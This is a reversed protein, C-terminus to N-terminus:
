IAVWEIRTRVDTWEGFNVEAAVAAIFGPTDHAWQLTPAALAQIADWYARGLTREFNLSEDQFHAYWESAYTLGIGVAQEYTKGHNTMQDTIILGLGITNQMSIANKARREIETSRENGRYFKTTIKAPTADTGDERIWTRTTIRKLPINVANRYYDVQVKLILDSFVDTDPDYDAYWEATWMEGLLIVYKPHLRRTLSVKYDHDIPAITQDRSDANVMYRYQKVPSIVAVHAPILTGDMYTEDAGSIAETFWTDIVDGNVDVHMFDWSVAAADQAAICEAKWYDSSFSGGFDTSISKTIKYGSM